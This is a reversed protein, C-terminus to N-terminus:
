GLRPGDLWARAREALEKLRPQQWAPELMSLNKYGITAPPYVQLYLALAHRRHFTSAAQDRLYLEALRAASQAEAAEWVVPQDLAARAAELDNEQLAQDGIRIASILRRIGSDESGVGVPQALAEALALVPELWRAGELRMGSKLEQVAEVPKGLHM